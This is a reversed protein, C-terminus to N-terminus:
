KDTCRQVVQDGGFVADVLFGEGDLGGKPVQKALAGAAGDVPDQSVAGALSHCLGQANRAVVGSKEDIVQVKGGVCFAGGQDGCLGAEAILVAM